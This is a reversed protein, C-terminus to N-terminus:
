EAGLAERCSRCMEVVDEAGLIGSVIVVRRAGAAIVERLNERKIGGICFIPIGVREHVAAIADLGIPDYDPKTPTAFLPGFGIYDPEEAAAEVAQDLSHTSKGVLIPRDTAQRAGAVGADEQGVHVGDAGIMAAVHPYDNIIFPVAADRCLPALETGLEIIEGTGLAKARLQLVQVGGEIMREAMAKADRRAVYSLDLIGYLRADDLMAEVGVRELARSMM